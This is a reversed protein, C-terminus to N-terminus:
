LCNYISSLLGFIVIANNLRSYITTILSEIIVLDVVGVIIDDVTVFFYMYIGIGCVLTISTLIFLM